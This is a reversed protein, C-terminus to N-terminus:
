EGLIYMLIEHAFNWSAWFGLTFLVFFLIVAFREILKM